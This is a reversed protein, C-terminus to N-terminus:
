QEARTAATESRLVDILDAFGDPAGPVWKHTGELRMVDSCAPDGADMSTMLARFQDAQLPSVDPRATFVCHSFEPSTWVIHLAADGTASVSRWLREGIIGADGRGDRLAKLVYQESSCPNGQGDVEQDLSLVKVRSLEVGAQTLYFEPLVTAEAAKRSGLVLTHDSLDDLSKIGSEIRAVLVSRFGCDVDRMVLTQSRGDLRLHAQAHALPTNWAIDVDGKVLADVLADYNSYLVYDAPLGQENLYRKIGNFVTVASPAYAVAGIRVERTAAPEAASITAGFPLLWSAVFCATRIHNSM